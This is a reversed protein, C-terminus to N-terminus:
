KGDIEETPTDSSGLVALVSEPYLCLKTNDPFEMYVISTNIKASITRGSIIERVFTGTGSGVEIFGNDQLVQELEQYTDVDM